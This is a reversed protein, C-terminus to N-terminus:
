ANNTVYIKFQIWLNGRIYDGVAFSKEQAPYALRLIVPLSKEERLIAVDYLEITRGMFETSTKGVIDGQFWAEDEQGLNDGYLYAVMKSIDLTVPMEDQPSQPQWAALLEQLNDPTEGNHQALIDNLARHHRIAAADDILMTEKVPVAELEYAWASIEIQYDTNACYQHQNVAYLTDYGYISSGDALKVELIAEHNTPCAVIRKVKANFRYPSNFIPFATKLATPRNDKVAVIQSIQIDSKLGNLLWVNDPLDSESNCLGMPSSASDLAQQLWQSVEQEPTKSLIKWHAAHGGFNECNLELIEPQQPKSM